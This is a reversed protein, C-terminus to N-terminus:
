GNQDDLSTSHNFLGPEEEVLLEPEALVSSSLADLFKRKTGPSFHTMAKLLEGALKGAAVICL